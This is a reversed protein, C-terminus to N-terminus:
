KMLEKYYELALVKARTEINKEVTTIQGGLVKGKRDRILENVQILIKL